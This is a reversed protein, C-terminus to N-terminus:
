SNSYLTASLYIFISYLYSQPLISTTKLLFSMFFPIILWIVIRNFSQNQEITLWKEQRISRREHAGIWGVKPGVALGPPIKVVVWLLAEQQIRLDKAAHTQLISPSLAAPLSKLVSLVPRTKM